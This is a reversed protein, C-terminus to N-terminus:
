NQYYSPATLCCALWVRVWIALNMPGVHPGGPDQWAGSPGWAAGMFRAILPALASGPIWRWIVDSHGRYTKIGTVKVCSYWLCNCNRFVRALHLLLHGSLCVLIFNRCHLTPMIFVIAVRWSTCIRYSLKLSIHIRQLWIIVCVFLHMSVTM